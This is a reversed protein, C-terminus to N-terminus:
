PAPICLISVLIMKNIGADRLNVAEQVTAVGFGDVYDNLAHAIPIAGHGYGDAKIIVMLKTNEKLLKKIERVNSKLADFDIEAQVRVYKKM